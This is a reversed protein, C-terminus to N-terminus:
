FILVKDAWQTWSTLIDMSGRTAGEILEQASIGRADICTGCIGIEGGARIIMGLMDGANYYGQPVKQGAKACAVADGMLFVKVEESGTKLLHRALRMANYSRETGYPADNLIFLSKM